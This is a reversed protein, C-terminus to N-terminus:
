FIWSLNLSFSGSFLNYSLFDDAQVEREVVSNDQPDLLDIKTKEGINYDLNLGNRYTVGVAFNKAFFYDAGILVIGGIGFSTSSVATVRSNYTLRNSYTINTSNSRFRGGLEYGIFGQVNKLSRRYETGWYYDLSIQNYGNTRKELEGDSNVWFQFAEDKFGLMYIRHTRTKGDEVFHKYQFESGFGQNSGRYFINGLVNFVPELNTQLVRNGKSPLNEQASSNAHLGLICLLLLVKKM